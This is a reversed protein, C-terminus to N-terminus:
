GGSPCSANGVVCVGPCEVLGGLPDCSGRPDNTCCQDGPCAVELVGGCGQITQTGGSEIAYCACEESEYDFPLCTGRATVGGVTYSCDGGCQGSAGGGCGICSPDPETVQCGCGGAPLEAVKGAVDTCSGISAVVCSAGVNCTGATTAASSALAGDLPVVISPPDSTRGIIVIEPDSTPTAPLGGVPLFFSAQLPIDDSILTWGTNACQQATTECASAGSCSFRFISSPDSLTGTSDERQTCYVFSPPSGDPQYVNGTVSLFRDVVLGQESVAPQLSYSISWRETGVDKTVLFNFQDLSLTAGRSSGTGAFASRPQAFDLNRQKVVWSRFGDYARGAYALLREVLGHEVPAVRPGNWGALALAERKAHGRKSAIRLPGAGGPPLFFSAPVTVDDSITTWSGRACSEATTTCADSGSCSLRFVSDPNTLTGTSDSRVLCTVFSAPGGDARFISGTVNIIDSPNSSFLNVNITWRENGLDKNVLYSQKDPSLTSGSPVQARATRAGLVAIIAIAVARLLGGPHRSDM